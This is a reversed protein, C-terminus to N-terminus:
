EGLVESPAAEPATARPLPGPGTLPCVALRAVLEGPTPVLQVYELDEQGVFGSVIWHDLCNKVTAWYGKVDLLLCPKGHLGLQRWTLIEFLEEATGLGGPMAVFADALEAMLSKREHMTTVVHIETLNPHGIGVDLMQQPIVGIVRGGAQLAGDALAGMCGISVGGFVIEFDGEALQRGLNAAYDRYTPSTGLRAGGFVTVRARRSTRDPVTPGIRGTGAKSSRASPRAMSLAPVRPALPTTPFRPAQPPGFLEKFVAQQERGHELHADAVAQSLETLIRERQSDSLRSLTASDPPRVRRLLEEPDCGRAACWALVAEPGNITAVFPRQDEVRWAAALEELMGDAPEPPDLMDRARDVLGARYAQQDTIRRVDVSLTFPLREDALLARILSMSGGELVVIRSATSVQEWHATLGNAAEEAPLDGDRVLRRAAYLRSVGHELRRPTRASTVELDEFCQIRDAVLIPGGFTKAM